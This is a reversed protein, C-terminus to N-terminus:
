APCSGLIRTFEYKRSPKVKACVPCRPNRDIKIKEIDLSLGDVLILHGIAPEGLGTLLKIAELAQISALLSVHPIIVPCGRPGSSMDKFICSLCPTVGPIVIMVQGYFGRIGAHIFPIEKKVCTKNIIDRAILNDTADIVIDTDSLLKEANNENLKENIEIVEIFPNMARLKESLSYTKKKGVDKDWHMLQSSLNVVDVEDFDIIKIRGVGAKALLASSVTGLAGAGVITVTKTKLKRQTRLGWSELAIQRSYRPIEAPLLKM